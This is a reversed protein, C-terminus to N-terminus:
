VQLFMKFEPDDVQDLYHSITQLRLCYVRATESSSQKRQNFLNWYHLAPDQPGFTRRIIKTLDNLSLNEKFAGAMRLLGICDGNLFFILQSAKEDDSWNLASTKADYSELWNDLADLAIPYPIESLNLKKPDLKRPTAPFSGGPFIKVEPD